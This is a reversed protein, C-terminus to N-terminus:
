GIAVWSLVKRVAHMQLESSQRQLFMAGISTSIFIFVYNTKWIFHGYNNLSRLWVYCCEYSTRLQQPTHLKFFIWHSRRYLRFPVTNKMCLVQQLQSIGVFSVGNTPCALITRSVFNCFHVKLPVPSASSFINQERPLWCFSRDICRGVLWGVFYGVCRGVM